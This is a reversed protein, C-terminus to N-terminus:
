HQKKVGESGPPNSKGKLDVQSMKVMVKMLQLEM